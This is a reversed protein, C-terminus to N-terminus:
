AAREDVTLIFPNVDDATMKQRAYPPPVTPHPQTPWAQEGPMAILVTALLKRTSLDDPRESL